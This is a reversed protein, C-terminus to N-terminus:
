CLRHYLSKLLLTNDLQLYKFEGGMRSFSKCFRLYYAPHNKPPEGQSWDWQGEQIDNVILLYNKLPRGEQLAINRAMSVSKEFTMPAMIASGVSLFVGGELHSVSNAFALFDALTSRGIASGNNLPHGYIIDYGIGPCVSFPIQLCYAHHQISVKKHPHLIEMEGAPIKFNQISALLNAVDAVRESMPQQQMLFDMQYHLVETAPISLGDDYIMKGVSEGYGLGYAAGVLVALNLFFGTEQWLGFQGEQIYRKVDEETEGHFALEWDHISGAGNTLLHQIWGKKMLEILLPALGNKFLHAGYAFLIPASKSKAQKMREVITEVIAESEESLEPPPEDLSALINLDSKSQRQSLPKFIIKRRDFLPYPMTKTLNSFVM